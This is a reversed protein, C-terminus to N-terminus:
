HPIIKQYITKRLADKVEKNRLSYILPNLMPIVLTYFVSVVKDYEVSDRSTPRLYMFCLTGYLISVAMLHSACTSFAKRRGQNSRIRLIAMMISVYSVLIVLISSLAVIVAFLFHVTDSVHSDSCSLEQLPPIDCFFHDIINPGCFSQSFLSGTHVIANISAYIYSAAVLQVCVKRSMILTYMLPKCIAIFRNYAMVALLLAESTVSFSHFFFQTACGAFSIVKREALFNMLAKPAITSSYTIDVLSLNSLFFYMPTHLRTVIKILSIMSLNGVLSLSYIFLFMGFFIAQLSRSAKFGLLIFVSVGTHNSSEM